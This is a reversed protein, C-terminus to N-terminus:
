EAASASFSWFRSPDEIEDRAFDTVGRSPDALARRLSLQGSGIRRSDFGLVADGFEARALGAPM